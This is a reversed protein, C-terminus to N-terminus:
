VAGLAVAPPLKGSLKEGAGKLISLIEHLQKKGMRYKVGMVTIVGAVDGYCDFVPVAIARAGETLEEESIEYGRKGAILLRKKLEDKSTITGPGIPKLTLSNFIKEREEGKVLALLLRAGAGAYLPSIRGVRISLRISQQGEVCDLCIAHTGWRIQFSVSEKTKSAIDTLVPHVVDSLQFSKLAIGALRILSFGLQYKGNGPIRAAYGGRELAVIFRYMTPVPISLLKSLRKVEVPQNAAIAEIVAIAKDVTQPGIDIRSIRM